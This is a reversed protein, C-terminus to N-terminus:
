FINYYINFYYLFNHAPNQSKLNHFKFTFNYTTCEKWNKWIKFLDNIYYIWHCILLSCCSLCFSHFVLKVELILVNQRSNISACILIWCIWWWKFRNKFINTNMWVMKYWAYIFYYDTSTISFKRGVFRGM